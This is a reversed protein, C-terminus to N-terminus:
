GGSITPLLIPGGVHVFDQRGLAAMDLEGLHEDLLLRIYYDMSSVRELGFAKLFSEISRALQSETLPNIRGQHDFYKQGFAVLEEIALGLKPHSQPDSVHGLDFNIFSSLVLAEFDIERATYNLAFENKLRGDDVMQRYSQELQHIFPLAERLRRVEKVWAEFTKGDVVELAPQQGHSSVVPPHHQLSGEVLRQFYPGLFRSPAPSNPSDPAAAAPGHNHALAQRLHRQQVHVLTRGIRYVEVFSFLDFASGQGFSRHTKLQDLGIRLYHCTKTGVRFLTLESGKLAEEVSLSANVLQLFDYHLFDVREPEGVKAVEAHVAGLATAFPMVAGRRAGQNKSQVSIKSSSQTKSRIFKAVAIEDAMPFLMEQAQYYDIIGHNQLRNKKLCYQEEQLLSFSTVLVKFLHAYAYEVGLECYLARLLQQLENAWQFSPNYAILLLQDDTLFFNDHEPYQPDEQDFTSLAFAGRLYLAFQESQVFERQLELSNVQSLTTLWFEFASPDLHDKQWLDLEWLDERQQPSTLPLYHAAQQPSLQRLAHHLPWLPTSQLDGQPSLEIIQAMDDGWRKASHIVHHILHNPESM